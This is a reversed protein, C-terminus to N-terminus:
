GEIGAWVFDYGVNDEACDICSGGGCFVRGDFPEEVDGRGSGDCHWLWFTLNVILVLFQFLSPM